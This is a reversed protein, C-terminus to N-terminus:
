AQWTTLDNEIIDERQLPDDTELILVSRSVRLDKLMGPGRLNRSYNAFLCPQLGGSATAVVGVKVRDALAKENQGFLTNTRFAKQLATEIGTSKYRFSCFLQAANRFVPVKLIQRPSFAENVLDIFKQRAEKVSWDMKFIGLAVIGGTSTGIVLDFLEQIPISHGVQEVLQDLIYLEM